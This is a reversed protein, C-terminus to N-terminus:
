DSNLLLLYKGQAISIGQNNAKSFGLNQHNFILKFKTNQISFESYQINGKKKRKKKEKGKKEGGLEDNLIGMGLKKLYERSGDTSNNDVVIIEVFNNSAQRRSLKWGEVELMLSKLCQELLDKTNYNVIIISLLSVAM